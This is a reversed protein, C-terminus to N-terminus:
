IKDIDRLLRNYSDNFKSIIVAFSSYDFKPSTIRYEDSSVNQAITIITGFSKHIGKKPELFGVADACLKELELYGEHFRKKLSNVDSELYVKWRKVEESSPLKNLEEQKKIISDTQRKLSALSKKILECLRLLERKEPESITYSYVLKSEGSISDDNSKGTKLSEKTAANRLISAYLEAIAEAVIDIDDEDGNVDIKLHLAFEIIRSEEYDQLEEIYFDKDFYYELDDAIASVGNEGRLYKRLQDGKKKEVCDKGKNDTITPFLSNIWEKGEPRLGIKLLDKVFKAKGSKQRDIIEYFATAYESFTTDTEAM